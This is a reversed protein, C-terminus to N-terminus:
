FRGALAFGNFSMSVNSRGARSKSARRPALVWADVALLVTGAVISTLGVGLLTAGPPTYNVV